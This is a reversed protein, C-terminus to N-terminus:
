LTLARVCRVHAEITKDSVSQDNNPTILTKYFQFWAQMNSNNSDETSSWYYEQLSSLALTDVLTSQMNQIIPVGSIACNSLPPTSASYGMECISPLYWDSYGTLPGSTQKCVAAADTNVTPYLYKIIINTTDCSGDINGNCNLQGPLLTSGPVPTGITSTEAIGWVSYHPLTAWAISNSGDFYPGDATAAVTGGISSTTPTTDNISFVYGGQYQCGYGLVVANATVTAGAGYPVTILGSVPATGTTTCPISSNNSSATTGPTITITCAGGRATLTQGSCTDGTIRTGIPLGTATVTGIAEASVGSNTFNITRPHGSVSLALTSTSPVLPPTPIIVASSYAAPGTGVTNTAKVSFTYSTGATLSSIVCSPTTLSPTCSAPIVGNTVTYGTISLSGTNVPPFWSLTVQGNGPVATIDTPAAPVTSPFTAGLVYQSFATSTSSSFALDGSYSATILHTGATSLTVDCTAVGSSVAIAACLTTGADTFSVTGGTPVGASSGVNATFTIPNITLSSNVSSSLVTNTTAVPIVATSAASAPGTGAANTATVTFTYATGNTLGTVACTTAPAAVTCIQGGGGSATATYQVIVSGGDSGPATWLVTAEANGATAMANTPAGPVTAQATPTVPIIQPSTNSVTGIFSYGNPLPAGTVGYGPTIIYIGAYQYVKGLKTTSINLIANSVHHRECSLPSTGNINLCLIFSLEQAPGSATVEFLNGTVAYATHDLCFFLGILLQSFLRKLM